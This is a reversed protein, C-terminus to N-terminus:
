AEQRWLADILETLAQKLSGEIGLRWPKGDPYWIWAGPEYGGERIAQDTPLYNLTSDTYGLILTSTAPSVSRGHYAYAVFPEGALGVLLADGLRLGRLPVSQTERSPRPPRPGDPVLPPEPPLKAQDLPLAVERVATVLPLPQVQRTHRLANRVADAAEKGVAEVDAFSGSTHKPNQDGCCGQLFVARLQPQNAELDSVAAGMWEASILLNHSDLVVGHVPTSWLVVDPANSRKLQWVTVEPLRQGEPNAALAVQGEQWKRRNLGVDVPAEGVWLTADALTALAQRAAVTAQYVLWGFYVPEFPQYASRVVMPGAHTHSTNTIILERALGTAASVAGKLENDGELDLSVVDLALLLITHAGDSLAVSSVRLRDHIGVNTESRYGYGGMHVPMQPTIDERGFGVQFAGM